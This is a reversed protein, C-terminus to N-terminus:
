ARVTLPALPEPGDVTELGPIADLDALRAVGGPVVQQGSECGTERDSDVVAVGDVGARRHAGQGAEPVATLHQGDGVSGAVQGSVDGHVGEGVVLEHVLPRRQPLQSDAALSRWVLQRPAVRHCVQLAQAGGGCCHRQRGLASEAVEHPGEGLRSSLIPDWIVMMAKLSGMWREAAASKADIVTARSVPQAPPEEVPGSGTTVTFAVGATVAVPAGLVLSAAGLFSSTPRANSRPVITLTTCAPPTGKRMKSRQVARPTLSEANAALPTGMPMWESARKSFWFLLVVNRM